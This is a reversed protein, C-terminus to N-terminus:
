QLKKNAPLFGEYVSRPLPYLELDRGQVPTWVLGKVRDIISMAWKRNDTLMIVLLPLLHDVEDHIQRYVKKASERDEASEDLPNRARLAYKTRALEALEGRTPHITKNDLTLDVIEDYADYNWKASYLYATMVFDQKVIHSWDRWPTCNFKEPPCEGDKPIKDLFLLHERNKAQLLGPIPSVLQYDIERASSFICAKHKDEKKPKVTVLHFYEMDPSVLFLVDAAGQDSSARRGRAFVIYEEATFFDLLQQYTGTACFKEELKKPEEEKTWGAASVFLLIILLVPSRSFMINFIDSWHDSM